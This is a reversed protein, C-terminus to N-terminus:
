FIRASVVVIDGPKLNIDVEEKNGSRGKKIITSLKVNITEKAGDAMARIIIIKNRNAKDTFGGATTIAELVTTGKKESLDIAQPETVEGMVYVFEARYERTFVVVHPDVIYDKGLLGAIKKELERVTMGEAYISGLLPFSIYGDSSVRTTVSLDSHEYVTIELVDEPSIRLGECQAIQSMYFICAISFVTIINLKVKLSMSKSEFM